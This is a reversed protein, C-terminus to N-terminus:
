KESKISKENENENEEDETEWWQFSRLWNVFLSSTQVSSEVRYFFSQIGSIFGTIQSLFRDM